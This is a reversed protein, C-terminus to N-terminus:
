SLCCVCEVNTNSSSRAKTSTVHCCCDERYVGAEYRSMADDDDDDRVQGYALQNALILDPKFGPAAPSSVAAGGNVCDPLSIHQETSQQQQQHHYTHCAKDDDDDHQTSTAAQSGETPPPHAATAALWASEMVARIQSRLWFMGAMETPLMGSPITLHTHTHLRLLPACPLGLAAALPLLLLLLRCAAM